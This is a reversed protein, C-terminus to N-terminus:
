SKRCALLTSCVPEVQAIRDVPRCCLFLLIFYILQMLQAGRHWIATKKQRARMQWACFCCHHVGNCCPEQAQGELASLPIQPCSFIQNAVKGILSCLRSSHPLLEWLGALCLRGTLAEAAQPVLVTEHKSTKLAASTAAETGERYTQNPSSLPLHLWLYMKQFHTNTEATLV